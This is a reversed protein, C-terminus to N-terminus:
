KWLGNTNNLTTLGGRYMLYNGYKGAGVNHGEESNTTPNFNVCMLIPPYAIPHLNYIPIHQCAYIIDNKLLQPGSYNEVGYIDPMCINLYITKVLELTDLAGYKSSFTTNQWISKGEFQSPNINDLSEKLSNYGFREPETTIKGRLLKGYAAVPFIGNDSFGGFERCCIATVMRIGRCQADNNLENLTQPMKGLWNSNITKTHYYEWVSDSVNDNSIRSNPISSVGGNAKITTTSEIRRPTQLSILPNLSTKGQSDPTLLWTGNPGGSSNPIHIGDVGLLKNDFYLKGDEYKFISNLDNINAYPTKGLVNFSGFGSDAYRDGYTFDLHLNSNVNDYFSNTYGLLDGMKVQVNCRNSFYQYNFTGPGADVNAIPATLESLGAMELYNIFITNGSSDKRDTKIVVVYGYQDDTNRCNVSVITGDTMSYVGNNGGVGWDLKNYGHGEYTHPFASASVDNDIYHQAYDGLPHFYYKM